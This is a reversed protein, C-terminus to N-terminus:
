SIMSFVDLFCLQMFRNQARLKMYLVTSNSTFFSEFTKLCCCCARSPSSVSSAFALIGCNVHQVAKKDKRYYFVNIKGIRKLPM